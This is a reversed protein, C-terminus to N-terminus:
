VYNQAGFIFITITPKDMITCPVGLGTFDTGYLDYRM